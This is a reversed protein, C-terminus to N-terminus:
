FCVLKEQDVLPGVAGKLPSVFFAMLEPTLPLPDVVLKIWDLLELERVESILEGWSWEGEGMPGM